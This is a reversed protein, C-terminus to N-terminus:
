FQKSIEQWTKAIGQLYARAFADVDPRKQDNGHLRKDAAAPTKEVQRKIFRMDEPSLVDQDCLATLQQVVDVPLTCALIQERATRKGLQELSEAPENLQSKYFKAAVAVEAATTTSPRRGGKEAQQREIEAHLAKMFIRSFNLRKRWKEVLKMEAKPVYIALKPMPITYAYIHGYDVPAQRLNRRWNKAPVDSFYASFAPTRSRTPNSHFTGPSEADRSSSSFDSIVRFFFTTSAPKM